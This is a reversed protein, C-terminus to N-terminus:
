SDIMDVEHCATIKTSFLWTGWTAHYKKGPEVTETLMPIGSMGAFYIRIPKDSELEAVSGSPVSKLFQGTDANYISIPYAPSQPDSDIKIRIKTSCNAAIPYGCNPCSSASNSVQKGCEPCTILAM